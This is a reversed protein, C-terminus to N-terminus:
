IIFRASPMDANVMVGVHDIRLCSNTNHHCFALIGVDFLLVLVTTVAVSLSLLSFVLLARCLHLPMLVISQHHALIEKAKFM